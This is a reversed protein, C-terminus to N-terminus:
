LEYTDLHRVMVIACANPNANVSTPIAVPHHEVYMVEWIDLGRMTGILVRDGKSPMQVYAQMGLKWLGDVDRTEAQIM